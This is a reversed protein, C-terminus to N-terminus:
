NKVVAVASVWIPLGRNSLGVQRCAGCYAEAISKRDKLYLRYFSDFYDVCAHDNVDWRFGIVSEARTKMVEIASRLSSGSCSSLVVMRIDASAVWQGIVRMSVGMGVGGRSRDPFILFTGGNDPLSCSHGSFHLIDFKQVELLREIRKVFRRATELPLPAMVKVEQLAYDEDNSAFSEVVDLEDPTNLLETLQKLPTPAGTVEHLVVADGKFSANIFLMRLAPKEPATTRNANAPTRVSSPARRPFRIRRAMPVRTCLFRDLYEPPKALEFPLGFLRATEDNGVEIDIRLEVPEPPTNDDDNDQFHRVIYPGITGQIFSDFIEEGLQGFYEQWDPLPLGGSMPSYSNTRDLLFQLESRNRYPYSRKASVDTDDDLYYHAEYEGVEVTVRRKSPKTDNMLRDLTRAFAANLDDERINLSAINRRKLLRTDLGEVASSMLVVVPVAPLRDTLWDLLSVAASGDGPAGGSSEKRVMGDLVVLGLSACAEEDGFLKKGARDTSAYKLVEMGAFAGAAPFRAATDDIACLADEILETTADDAILAIRKTAVMPKGSAIDSM